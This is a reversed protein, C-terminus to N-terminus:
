KKQWLLSKDPKDININGIRDNRRPATLQISFGDMENLPKLSNDIGNLILSGKGYTAQKFNYLHNYGMYSANIDGAFWQLGEIIETYRNQAANPPTLIVTLIKFEKQSSSADPIREGAYNILDDITYSTIGTANFYGYGTESEAPSCGTYIDLHFNENRLEQASKMGMLYLEIDSYPISNGGNAFIGFGDTFNGSNDTDQLMSAQYLTKGPVGGSNTEVTRVYKFGGLQGGANSVGWHGAYPKGEIDFTPCVYAAWSHCLEHLAPGNVIANYFPFYMASKLKGDSGWSSSSSGPTFGIGQVANSIRVHIGYFELGNLIAPDEDTNLVFFLFDFDDNFKSYVVNSINQLETDFSSRSILNNWQESTIKAELMTRNPDISNDLLFLGDGLDNGDINAPDTTFSIVDGYVTDSAIVAYARVYYVTNASLDTVTEEVNGKGVREIKGAIPNQETGWYFGYAVDNNDPTPISAKFVASTDTINEAPLTTVDVTPAESLTTFSIVDGYITDLAIIAYVRVYYVTNASLDTVTEEVDGKGIREIKNNEIIPNPETGWYFGYKVNNNDPTPISAKFVASTDTINEAPLTTVVTPAEPETAFM